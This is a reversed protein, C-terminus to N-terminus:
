SSSRSAGFFVNSKLQSASIGHQWISYDTASVTAFTFGDIWTGWVDLIKDNTAREIPLRRAGTKLGLIPLIHTSWYLATPDVFDLPTRTYPQYVSRDSKERICEIPVDIDVVIPTRIDLPKNFWCFFTPLTCLVFIITALEFTTLPLGQCVRGISQALFWATQVITITRTFTDAKNKDGILNKDINPYAIYQETVLWHLQKANVPFPPYDPSQLVVGGMDAFFAHCSKWQPHGSQAFDQVSRRASAWQGLPFTLLIEPCFITLVMWRAKRIVLHTFKEDEGPINLCLATWCCLFITSICSWIIEITGRDSPKHVWGYILVTTTTANTIDVTHM